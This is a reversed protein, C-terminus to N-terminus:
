ISRKRYFVIVAVITVLAFGTVTLFLLPSPEDLPETPSTLSTSITSHRSLADDLAQSADKWSDAIVLLHQAIESLNEAHEAIAATMNNSEDYSNVIAIFTGVFSSDVDPPSFIDTLSNNNSLADMHTLAESAMHTFQTLNIDPLLRPITTLATRYSLYQLTMSQEFTIGILYLQMMKSDMDAFQDLHTGLVDPILDLSMDRFALEGFNVYSLNESGPATSTRNGSLREVILEGLDTPFDESPGAASKFITMGYGLANWAAKLATYDMSYAWRGDTPYGFNDGFSGVGPDLIDVTGATDNYGVILIAHGSIPGSKNAPQGYVRALDYDEPPLFYPDVWAVIPYGENLTAKLVQFAETEGEIYSANVGWEIWAPLSQQAWPSNIDVLVSYDVNYLNSITVYHAQQRMDSGAIFRLTENVNIYASTFGIASMAFLTHLDVDIGISQLAMTVAAWNCFGNIEQWVYDIGDIYASGSNAIHHDPSNMEDGSRIAIPSVAVTYFTLMVILVIGCRKM